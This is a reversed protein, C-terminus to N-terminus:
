LGKEEQPVEAERINTTHNPASLGPLEWLDRIICVCLLPLALLSFYTAPGQVLLDPSHPQLYLPKPTAKVRTVMLHCFDPDQMSAFFCFTPSSRQVELSSVEVEEFFLNKFYLPIGHSQSRSSFPAWPDISLIVEELSLVLTNGHTLNLCFSVQMPSFPTGTFRM